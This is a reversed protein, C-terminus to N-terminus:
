DVLVYIASLSEYSGDRGSEPSFMGGRLRLILFIDSKDVINYSALKRNDELQKGEFVLRMQDIPIGDEDCIYHKLSMVSIDESLSMDCKIETHKGSISRINIVDPKDKGFHADSYSKELEVKQSALDSRLVMNLFTESKAFFPTHMASDKIVKDNDVNRFTIGSPDNTMKGHEDKYKYAFIKKHFIIKLIEYPTKPTKADITFLQNGVTKFTYRQIKSEREQIQFQMATATACAM